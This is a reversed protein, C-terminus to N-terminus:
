DLEFETVVQIPRPVIIEGKIILMRDDNWYNLDENELKEMTTCGYYDEDLLKKLKSKDVEDIRVDGDSVTIVYYKM